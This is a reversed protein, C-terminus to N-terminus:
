KDKDGKVEKDEKDEETIDILKTILIIHLILCFFHIGVSNQSSNM